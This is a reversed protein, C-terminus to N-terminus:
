AALNGAFEAAIGILHVFITLKMLFGTLGNMNRVPVLPLSAKDMLLDPFSLILEIDRDTDPSQRVRDVEYIATLSSEDLVVVSERQLKIVVPGLLVLSQLERGLGHYREVGFIIVTSLVTRAYRQRGVIVREEDIRRVLATVHKIRCLYLERSLIQSSQILLTKQFYNFLLSRPQSM